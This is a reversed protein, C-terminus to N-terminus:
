RCPIRQLFVRQEQDVVWPYMLSLIMTWISLVDLRILGHAMKLIQEAQQVMEQSMHELQQAMMM